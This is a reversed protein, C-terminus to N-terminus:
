QPSPGGAFLFNILYFVDGVEVTCSGDLDGSPAFTVNRFAGANSGNTSSASVQAQM